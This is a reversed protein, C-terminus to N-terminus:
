LTMLEVEAQITKELDIHGWISEKEQGLRRPYSELELFSLCNGWANLGWFAMGRQDKKGNNGILGM